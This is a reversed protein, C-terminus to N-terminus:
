LQCTAMQESEFTSTQSSGLRTGKAMETEGQGEASDTERWTSEEHGGREKGGKEERGLVGSQPYFDRRRDKRGM